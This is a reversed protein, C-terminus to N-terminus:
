IVKKGECLNLLDTLALVQPHPGRGERIVKLIDAKKLKGIMHMIMQQSPMSAHGSFHTARFVPQQFMLDLLPIAYQSHTLDLIRKKLETYLDHIQRAKQVNTRAQESLGTLFFHIWHNWAEPVRGIGRLHEIYEERHRELHESLYFMPRSLIHKEYLFLPILIRGLRGNGDLFPHLIEFQAHVIALQVLPDLSDSHYYLEWKQLASTLVEGPAPPVFQAEEIRSGPAGIWNQEKRFFGRSQNRGRVSDLLTGHLQLLMGLNFPRKNLGEEAERLSRRYNIIEQIDQRKSEQRPEEGAEYKLVEGFTAQTGEIKSSLVAEQTTLPSLLAEPNPLSYLVGNYEAIHRNAQGILPIHTEWRLEAPPLEQPTFPEM